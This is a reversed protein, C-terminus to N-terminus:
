PPDAEAKQLLAQSEEETIEGTLMKGVLTNINHDNSMKRTNIGTSKPLLKINYCAFPCM